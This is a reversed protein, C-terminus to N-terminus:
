KDLPKNLYIAYYEAIDLNIDKCYNMVRGNEGMVKTRNKHRGRIRFTKGLVKKNTFKKLLRIFTAGEDNNPVTFDQGGNTNKLIEKIRTQTIEM